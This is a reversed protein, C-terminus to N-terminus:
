SRSLRQRSKFIDRFDLKAEYSVIITASPAQPCISKCLCVGRRCVFVGEPSLFEHRSIENILTLVKSFIKPM